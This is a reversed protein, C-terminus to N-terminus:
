EPDIRFLWISEQRVFGLRELLGDAATGARAEFERAGRSESVGLAHGVLWSGIGRQRWARDVALAELRHRAPTLVTCLYVGVIRGEDQEMGTKAVRILPAGRLGSIREASLGGEVLLDVPM